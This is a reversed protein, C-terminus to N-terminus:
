QVTLRRTASIRGNKSFVLYYVGTSLRPLRILGPPAVMELDLIWKGDQSFLSLLGGIVDADAFEVRVADWGTPVPNPFVQLVEPLATSNIGDCITMIVRVTDGNSCYNTDTVYAAIYLTDDPSTFPLSFYQDSSGDSWQYFLFGSGADLMLTDATCLVTDAGLNIVPLDLITVQLTDSSKPCGAPSICTYSYLGTTSVTITQVSDLSSWAYESGAGATLQVQGGACFSIPGNANVFYLEQDLEVWYPDSLVSCSNNDTVRVGYGQNEFAFLSTDTAGVIFDIESGDFQYWAQTGSGSPIFLQVSDGPCIPNARSATVLPIAPLEYLSDIVVRDTDLSCYNSVILTYTGSFEPTFSPATEGDILTDNRYWAYTYTPDTTGSLELPTKRCLAVTDQLGLDASPLPAIYVPFSNTMVPDSGSVYVTAQFIGSVVIQVSETTDGNSWEIHAGTPPSPQIALQITDGACAFSTDGTIRYPTQVIGNADTRVFYTRGVGADEYTGLFAFGGDPLSMLQRGLDNAPGGFRRSWLSDGSANFRCLLLDQRGPFQLSATEALIAWGSDPLAIIQVPNEYADSGWTRRLLQMGVSDLLVTCGDGNGTSDTRGSLLTRKGPGCAISRSEMGFSYISDTRQSGNENITRWETAYLIDPWSYWYDQFYATSLFTGDECQVASHENFAGGDYALFATWRVGLDDELNLMSFFNSSLFGDTFHTVCISSDRATFIGVGSTGWGDFPPFTQANLPRASADLLHVETEADYFFGIRTGVMAFGGNPLATVSQALTQFSTSFTTDFLPTGTSDLHLLYYRNAALLSDWSSGVILFSGDIGQTFHVGQDPTGSGYYREFFSGAKAVSAALLGLFLIIFRTFSNM